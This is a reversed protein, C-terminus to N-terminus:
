HLDNSVRRHKLHMLWLMLVLKRNIWSVPVGDLVQWRHRFDKYSLLKVLSVTFSICNLYWRRSLESLLLPWNEKLSFQLFPEWSLFPTTLVQGQIIGVFLSAPVADEDWVFGGFCRKTAIGLTWLTTGEGIGTGKVTMHPVTGAFAGVTGERISCLAM